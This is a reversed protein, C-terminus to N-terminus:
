AGQRFFPRIINLSRPVVWSTLQRVVKDRLTLHRMYSSVRESCSSRLGNSLARQKNAAVM